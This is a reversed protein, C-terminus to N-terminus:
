KRSGRRRSTTTKTTTTLQGNIAKWRKTIKFETALKDGLEFAKLSTDKDDNNHCDDLCLMIQTRLKDLVQKSLNNNNHQKLVDDVSTAVLQATQKVDYAGVTADERLLQILLSVISGLQRQLQRVRIFHSHEVLTSCQQQTTFVHHQEVMLRALCAVALQVAHHTGYEVIDAAFPLSQRLSTNNDNQELGLQLLLLLFETASQQLGLSQVIRRQATESHDLREEDGEMCYVLNDMTDQLITRWFDDGVVNLVTDLMNPQQLVVKVTTLAWQVRHLDAFRQESVKPGKVILEILEELLSESPMSHHSSVMATLLMAGVHPDPGQLANRFTNGYLPKLPRTTTVSYTTMEKHSWDPRGKWTTTRPSSSALDLPADIFAEFASKNNNSSEEKEEEKAKKKNQQNKSSSVSTENELSSATSNTTAPSAVFRKKTPSPATESSEPAEERRARKTGTKKNNNNNNNNNNDDDDDDDDNNNNNNNNNNDHQKLTSSSEAEVDDNDSATANTNQTSPPIMSDDDEATTATDPTQKHAKVGATSTSSEPPSRTANTTTTMVSVSATQDTSTTTTTTTTTSTTAPSTFSDANENATAPFTCVRNTKIAEKCIQDMLKAVVKHYPEKNIGKKNDFHVTVTSGSSTSVVKKVTKTGIKCGMLWDYKTSSSTTSSMALEPVQIAALPVQLEYYEHYEPNQYCIDCSQITTNTTNMHLRAIRGAQWTSGNQYRARVWDGPQLTTSCATQASQLVVHDTGYLVHSDDDRKTVAQLDKHPFVYSQELSSENQQDDTRILLQYKNHKLPQGSQVTGFCWVPTTPQKKSKSSTSSSIAARFVGMSSLIRFRHGVQPVYDDPLQPQQKANTGQSKTASSSKQSSAVKKMSASTASPSAVPAPSSSNQSSTANTIGSPSNNSSIATATSSLLKAKKRPSAVTHSEETSSEEKSTSTRKKKTRPSADLLVPTVWFYLYQIEQPKKSEKKNSSVQTATTQFAIVDNEELRVAGTSSDFEHLRQYQECFRLYKATVNVNPFQSVVLASVGNDSLIQDIQLHKRSVCSGNAKDIGCEVHHQSAATKHKNVPTRGLTNGEQVSIIASNNDYPVFRKIGEEVVLQVRQVGLRPTAAPAQQKSLSKRQPQNKSSLSHNTMSQLVPRRCPATATAATM